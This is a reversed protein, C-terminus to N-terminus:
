RDGRYSNPVGFRWLSSALWQVAAAAYVIVIEHVMPEHGRFLVFYLGTLAACGLGVFAVRVRLLTSPRDTLVLREFVQWLLALCGMVYLIQLM